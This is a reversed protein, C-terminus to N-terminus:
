IKLWSWYRRLGAITLFAVVFAAVFWQMMAQANRAVYRDSIGDGPEWHWGQELEDRLEKCVKEANETSREPFSTCDKTRDRLNEINLREFDSFTAWDGRDTRWTGSIAPALLAAGMAITFALKWTKM